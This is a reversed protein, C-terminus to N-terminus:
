KRDIIYCLGGHFGLCPLRTRITPAQLRPNSRELDGDSSKLLLERRGALSGLQGGLDGVKLSDTVSGKGGDALVNAIDEAQGDPAPLQRRDDTFHGARQLLGILSQQLTQRAFIPEVGVLGTM